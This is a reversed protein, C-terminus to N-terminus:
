FLKGQQPELKKTLEAQERMLGRMKQALAKRKALYAIGYLDSHVLREMEANAEALKRTIIAKETALRAAEDM